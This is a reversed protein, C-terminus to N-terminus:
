NVVANLYKNRCAHTNSEGEPLLLVLYMIPIMNRVGALRIFLYIRGGIRCGKPKM